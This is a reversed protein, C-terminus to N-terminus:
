YKHGYDSVTFVDKPLGRNLVKIKQHNNKLVGYQITKQNSHVIIPNINNKRSFDYDHQYDDKRNYTELKNDNNRTVIRHCFHPMEVLKNRVILPIDIQNKKLSLENESNYRLVNGINTKTPIDKFTPTTIQDSNPYLINSEVRLSIVDLNKNLQNTKVKIAKTNIEEQKSIKTESYSYNILDSKNYEKVRTPQSDSQLLSRGFEDVRKNNYRKNSTDVLPPLLKHSIISKKLSRHSQDIIKFNKNARTNYPGKPPLQNNIDPDDKQFTFLPIKEKDFFCIRLDKESCNKKFEM